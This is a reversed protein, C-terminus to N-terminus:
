GRVCECSSFNHLTLKAFLNMTLKTKLLAVMLACLIRINLQCKVLYHITLFFLTLLGLM